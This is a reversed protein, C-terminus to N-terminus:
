MLRRRKFPPPMCMVRRCDIMDECDEEEEGEDQDEDIIRKRRREEEEQQQQQQRQRIDRIFPDILDTCYSYYKPAAPMAVSMRREMTTAEILDKLRIVHESMTLCLDVLKSVIMNKEDDQREEQVNMLQSTDMTDNCYLGFVIQDSRKYGVCRWLRHRGPDGM